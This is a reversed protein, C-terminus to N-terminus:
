LKLSAQSVHSEREFFLIFVSKESLKDETTSPWELGLFRLKRRGNRHVKYNAELIEVSTKFGIKYRQVMQFIKRGQSEAKSSISKNKLLSVPYLEALSVVQNESSPSGRRKSLPTGLQTSSVAPQYWDKSLIGVDLCRGWASKWLGTSIPLFSLVSSFLQTM